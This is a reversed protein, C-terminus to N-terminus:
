DGGAFNTDQVPAPQPSPLKPSPFEPIPDGQTPDWCWHGQVGFHQTYYAIKEAKRKLYPESTMGYVEMPFQVFQTDKLIFDPFVEAEDADFRLPKEFYRREEVLRAAVRWEYSSEVSLYQSTTVMASCTAVQVKWKRGKKEPIGVAMAVVRVPAVSSTGDQLKRIAALRGGVQDWLRGGLGEPVELSIQNAAQHLFSLVGQLLAGSDLEGIVVVRGRGQHAKDMAAGNALISPYLSKGSDDPAVTM